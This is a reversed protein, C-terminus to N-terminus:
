KIVTEQVINSVIYFGDVKKLVSKYNLLPILFHNYITGETKEHLIGRAAGITLVTLHTAFDYDLKLNDTETDLFMKMTEEHLQFQMAMEFVIFFKDDIKFATKFDVVIMRLANQRFFTIFYDFKIPENPKFAEEIIAFQLTSIKGLRFKIDKLVKSM